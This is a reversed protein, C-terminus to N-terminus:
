AASTRAAVQQRRRENGRRTAVEENVTAVFRQSREVIAEALRGSVRDTNSDELVISEVRGAFRRQLPIASSLGARRTSHMQILLVPQTVSPLATRASDLLLAVPKLLDASLSRAGRTEDLPASLHSAAVPGAGGRRPVVAAIRALWRQPAFGALASALRGPWSPLWARPELLVLAQIAEPNSRTVEIALMAGYGLGMVAVSDCQGKLRFVAHDAESLWRGPGDPGQRNDGDVRNGLEPCAVTYGASALSLAISRMDEAAGGADHLLLVGTKGGTIFVGSDSTM